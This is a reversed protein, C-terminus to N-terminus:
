PSDPVAVSRRRQDIRFELRGSNVGVMSTAARVAQADLRAAIASVATEAHSM